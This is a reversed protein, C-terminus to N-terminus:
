KRGRLLLFGGGGAVVVAAAAIAVILAASVGGGDDDDEPAPSTGPTGTDGTATPKETDSPQDGPRFCDPCAAESPPGGPGGGGITIPAKLQSSSLEGDPVEPDKDCVDGIQDLDLDNLNTEDATPNDPDAPQGNPKLPCNDQRNPYGDLDEDSNKGGTALDDNPDCVADLGDDDFDGPGPVRTDGTNVDYPCTDLLNEFGDGDVDRLGLAITQFEYEGAQPNVFLQTGDEAEGLAINKAFLPSCFDTIAGPAPEADPDGANQLVTVSAYGMEPDSPILENIVTGPEFILFQLLVPIGAVITVGASRRIPQLDPFLRNLFEPYKDISDFNGNEDADEAFDATNNKDEDLFSVTDDRDLSSNKFEFPVPIAQNCASNLLGLTADSELSGVVTGVPFKDGPVVGWDQPIFAIVAAFNVDGKPIGFDSTFGSPVEPDPTEVVVKLEPTFTAFASDSRGLLTVVSLLAVMAFVTLPRIKDKL